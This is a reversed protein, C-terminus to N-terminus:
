CCVGSRRNCNRRAHHWGGFRKCGSINHLSRVPSWEIMSPTITPWSRTRSTVKSCSQRGASGSWLQWPPRLVLRALRLRCAVRRSLVITEFADPLVVSILVVGVIAWLLM